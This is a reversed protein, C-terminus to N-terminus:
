AQQVYDDFDDFVTNDPLKKLGRIVRIEEFKKRKIRSLERSERSFINKM